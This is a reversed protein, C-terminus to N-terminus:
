PGGAMHAWETPTDTWTKERVEKWTRGNLLRSIEKKAAEMRASSFWRGLFAFELFFCRRILGSSLM